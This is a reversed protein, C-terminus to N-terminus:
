SIIWSHQLTYRRLGFKQLFIVWERSAAYKPLFTDEPYHDVSVPKQGCGISARHLVSDLVM